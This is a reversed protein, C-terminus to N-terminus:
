VKQVIGIIINLGTAFKICWGRANEKCEFNTLDNFDSTHAMLKVFKKFRMKKIENKLIKKPPNKSNPGVKHLLKLLCSSSEGAGLCLLLTGDDHAWPSLTWIVGLHM